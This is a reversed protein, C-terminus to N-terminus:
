ALRTALRAAQERQEPTGELIIDEIISRAGEAEGTDLYANALPTCCRSSCCQM